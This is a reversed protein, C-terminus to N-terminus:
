RNSPDWSGDWRGGHIASQTRWGPCYDDLLKLWQTRMKSPPATTYDPWRSHIIQNVREQREARRDPDPELSVYGGPAHRSGISEAWIDCHVLWLFGSTIGDRLFEHDDGPMDLQPDYNGINIANKINLGYLQMGWGGPCVIVGKHRDIAGGTFRDFISRRAAIGLVNPKRAEELLPHMDYGVKPRIDDDSMIISDFGRNYAHNVIYNQIYGFGMDSKAPYSVIVKGVWGEEYLLSIHERIEKRDVVLTVPIDQEIWRPVVKPLNGLRQRTMIYVANM